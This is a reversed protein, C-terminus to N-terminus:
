VWGGLLLLSCSAWMSLRLGYREILKNSIFTMPVIMIFQLKLMITMSTPSTNNYVEVMVASIPGWSNLIM